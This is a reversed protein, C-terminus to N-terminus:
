KRRGRIEWTGNGRSTFSIVKTVGSLDEMHRSVLIGDGKEQMSKLENDNSVVPVGLMWSALIIVLDDIECNSHSFLSDGRKPSAISCVSKCGGRRCQKSYKMRPSRKKSRRKEFSRRKESYYPVGEEDPFTLVIWETGPPLSPLRNKKSFYNFTKFTSVLVCGGPLSKVQSTDQNSIDVVCSINPERVERVVKKSLRIM